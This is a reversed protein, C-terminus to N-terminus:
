FIFKIGFRVAIPPYFSTKMKYSPNQVFGYDGTTLDWNTSLLTDEDVGLGYLTRNQDIQRATSVNFLNDV